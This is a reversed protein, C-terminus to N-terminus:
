PYFTTKILNKTKTKLCVQFMFIDESLSFQFLNFFLFTSEPLFHFTESFFTHKHIVFTLPTILTPSISNLSCINSQSYVLRFGPFPFSLIVPIVVLNFKATLYVKVPPHTPTPPNTHTPSPPHTPHTSPNLSVLALEAKLSLKVWLQAQAQCFHFM